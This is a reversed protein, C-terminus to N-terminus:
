TGSLSKRSIHRGQTKAHAKIVNGIKEAAKFISTECLTKGRPRLLRPLERTNRQGYDRAWLCWTDASGRSREVAVAEVTGTLAELCTLCFDIGRVGWLCPLANCVVEM